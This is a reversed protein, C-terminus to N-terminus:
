ETKEDTTEEKPVEYISELMNIAKKLSEDITDITCELEIKNDQKNVNYPADMNVTISITGDMKFYIYITSNTMKRQQAKYLFEDVLVVVRDVKVVKANNANSLTVPPERNGCGCIALCLVVLVLWKSMMM